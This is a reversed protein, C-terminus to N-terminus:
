SHSDSTSSKPRQVCEPINQDGERTQPAECQPYVTEGATAQVLVENPNTSEGPRAFPNDEKDAVEVDQLELQAADPSPLKKLRIDGDALEVDFFGCRAVALGYLGLYSTLTATAREIRGEVIERNRRNIYLSRAARVVRRDPAPPEQEM